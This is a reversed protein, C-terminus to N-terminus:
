LGEVPVNYTTICIAGSPAIACTLTPRDGIATPQTSVPFGTDSKEPLVLWFGSQM